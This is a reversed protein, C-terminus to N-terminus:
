DNKLCEEKVQLADIKPSIQWVIYADMSLKALLALTFLVNLITLLNAAKM